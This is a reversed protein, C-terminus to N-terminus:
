FLLIANGRGNEFSLVRLTGLILTIMLLSMMLRGLVKATLLM